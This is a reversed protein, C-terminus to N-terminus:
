KRCHEVYDHAVANQKAARNTSLTKASPQWVTKNAELIARQASPCLLPLTVMFGHVHMRTSM